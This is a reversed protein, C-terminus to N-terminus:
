SEVLSALMWALRGARAPASEEDHTLGARFSSLIVADCDGSKSLQVLNYQSPFIEGEHM